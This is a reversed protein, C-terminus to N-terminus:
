ARAAGTIELFAGELRSREERCDVVHVGTGEIVALVQGLTTGPDVDLVYDGSTVRELRGRGHLAANLGLVGQSGGRVELVYRRRTALASLGSVPGTFRIEGQDLVTVSHAFDRLEEIRQTAWLVATGRDAIEVTLRRVREAERPDLDHTAEDVLLVPPDTLLARAFAVRKQMGHSYQNLPRRAAEALGVRELAVTAREHAVRRRLGQLRGFFLLNELASIRLYLSRDGAPVVGVLRKLGTSGGTADIQCVRVEGASPRMAGSVLRILTTKGAGNPGVLAHIRGSEVRLSVESLAARGAFSRTVRDLAIGAAPMTGDSPARARGLVSVVMSTM